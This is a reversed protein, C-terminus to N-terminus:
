RTVFELDKPFPFFSEGLEKPANAGSIKSGGFQRETLQSPQVEHSIRQWQDSSPCRTDAWVRQITVNMWNITWTETWWRTARSRKREKQWLERWKGAIQSLKQKASWNKRLMWKEWVTATSKSRDDGPDRSGNRKRIRHQVQGACKGRKVDVQMDSPGWKSGDKRTRQIEWENNGQGKKGHAKNRWRCSKRRETMSQWERQNARWEIM